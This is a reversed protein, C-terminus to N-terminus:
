GVRRAALADAEDYRHASVRLAAAIEASARAWRRLQDALHEMERRVADGHAVYAHGATAGDFALGGLYRHVAGDVLDAVAQYQAAIRLLAAVDVRAADDAGM